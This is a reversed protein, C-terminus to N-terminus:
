ELARSPRMACSPWSARSVSTQVAPWSPHFAAPSTVSSACSKVTIGGGGGGGAPQGGPALVEACGPAMAALRSRASAFRGADLAELAARPAGRRRHAEVCRAARCLDAYNRSVKEVMGPRAAAHPAGLWAEIEPVSPDVSSAPGAVAAARLRCALRDLATAWGAEDDARDCRRDTM